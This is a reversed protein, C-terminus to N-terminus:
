VEPTTRRSSRFLPTAVNNRNYQFRIADCPCVNICNFCRICRDNDVRREKISICSAKCAEECRLCSDCKDPNLEIHMVANTSLYSLAAGVPCLTNCFDRGRLLSFILLILASVIAWVSGITLGAVLLRPILLLNRFWNWPELCSAVAAGFATMLIAYILLINFRSIRHLGSDRFRFQPEHGAAIFRGRIILDQLTGLPCVTSCYIRGLALTLLIWVLTAGMATAIAIASPLIQTRESMATHHPASAGCIIFAGAEFLFILSLVVRIHKLSKM